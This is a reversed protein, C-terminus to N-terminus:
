PLSPWSSAAPPASLSSWGHRREGCSCCCSPSAASPSIPRPRSRATWVPHYLAALLLGVVAANVGRLAAQATPRRRLEEWFPLHRDGAPVVAPLDRGPVARRRDLWAAPWSRASIPPSPSCRGRCRRRRATAPWSPTTPVWGPPVVEAQLLPLVVHGGGFVLSGARYFTDFLPSGAAGTASALLPLASWCRSSSRGAAISVARAAAGGAAASAQVPPPTARPVGRRDPRRRRDRRGPGAGVPGGARSRRASRSRERARPRARASRAM